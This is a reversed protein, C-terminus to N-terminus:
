AHPFGMSTRRGNLSYRVRVAMAAMLKKGRGALCPASAPEPGSMEIGGRGTDEVHLWLRKATQRWLIAIPRRGYADDALRGEIASFYGDANAVYADMGSVGLNGHVISNAIAESLATLAAPEDHAALHGRDVAWGVVAGAIGPTYANRTAIVAIYLAARVPPRLLSLWHPDIEPDIVYGQAGRLRDIMTEVDDLVAMPPM